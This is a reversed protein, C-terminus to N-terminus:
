IQFTTFQTGANSSIKLFSNCTYCVKRTILSLELRVTSWNRNKIEYVNLLLLQHLRLWRLCKIHVSWGAKIEQKASIM